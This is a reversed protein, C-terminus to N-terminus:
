DDFFNFSRDEPDRRKPQADKKGGWQNKNKLFNHLPDAESGFQDLDKTRLLQLLTYKYKFYYQEGHYVTSYNNIVTLLETIGYNKIVTRLRQKMPQTLTRHVTIKKSNWYEFIKQIDENMKKTADSVVGDGEDSTVNHKNKLEKELELSKVRNEPPRNDSMQGSVEDVGSMGLLEGNKIKMRALRKRDAETSTKGIMLEIDSMYLVNDPLVDILGLQKYTQLAKEVVGVPHRTVTAIMESNYPIHDKFLLRGEYKLSKLYLKILINSYLIGDPMSELLIMEDTDFFNEKLRMYYYKKSTSM